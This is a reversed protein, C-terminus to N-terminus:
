RHTREGFVAVKISSLARIVASISFPWVRVRPFLHRHIKSNAALKKGFLDACDRVQLRRLQDFRERRQWPLLEGARVM